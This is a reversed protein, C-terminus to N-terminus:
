NPKLAVEEWVYEMPLIRIHAANITKKQTESVFEDLVQNIRDILNKIEMDKLIDIIALDDNIQDVLFKLRENGTQFYEIRQNLLNIYALLTQIHKLNYRIRFNQLAAPHSYIDSRIQETRIEVRLEALRQEMSKRMEIAQDIKDVIKVRLLAIENIKKDLANTKIGADAAPLALLSWIVILAFWKGSGLIKMQAGTHGPRMLRFAQAPRQNKRQTKAARIIKQRIAGV